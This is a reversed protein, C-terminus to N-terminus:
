LDSCSLSPTPSAPRFARKVRRGTSTQPSRFSQRTWASATRTLPAHKSSGLRSRSAQLGRAPTSFPRSIRPREEPTSKSDPSDDDCSEEGSSTVAPSAILQSTGLDQLGSDLLALNEGPTSNLRQILHQVAEVSHGTAGPFSCQEQLLRRLGRAGAATLPVSLEPTIFWRFDM